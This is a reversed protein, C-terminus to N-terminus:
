PRWIENEAIVHAPVGGAVAHAPVDHTVVAGAAVISGLGLHVGKLIMARQGIWCGDGIIVPKPLNVPETGAPGHPHGDDDRVMVERALHCDAGITVASKCLIHTGGNILTNNGITVRGNRAEMVCGPYLSVDGLIHLESDILSLQCAAPPIGQGVGDFYGQTVGVRFTGGHVIIRSRILQVRSRHHIAVRAGGRLEIHKGITWQSCASVLRAAQYYLLSVIRGKAIWGRTAIHDRIRM